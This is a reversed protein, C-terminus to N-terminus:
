YDEDIPPCHVYKSIFIEVFLLQYEFQNAPCMFLLTVCETCVSLFHVYFINITVTFPWHLLATALAGFNEVDSNM